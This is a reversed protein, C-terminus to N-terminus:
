RIERGFLKRNKWVRSMMFYYVGCISLFLGYSVYEPVGSWEMLLGFAALVIAALVMAILTANVSWGSRLFAHHLHERDAEIMSMGNQRRKIMVFVTDILPVALLWLATVPAITRESGQSQEVLVWGLVFGLLLTGADGFFAWARTRWPLRLNFLLYACLGGALAPIEPAAALSQGSVTVAVAFGAVTVLALSASLGDMGDIMNIANTVGVVCFITVPITFWGLQLTGPWLLQGFDHLMVGAGFIMLCCAMIQVAFRLRQSLGRRDDCVGMLVLLMGGLLMSLLRSDDVYRLGLVFAMGAFLAFGGVLPIDGKHQKREDPRDMLGLQPAFGILVPMVILVTTFTLIFDWIPGPNLM